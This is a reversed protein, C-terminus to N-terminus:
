AKAMSESRVVHSSSHADLSRRPLPPSNPRTLMRSRNKPSPSTAVVRPSNIPPRSAGGIFSESAWSEEFRPSVPRDPSQYMDPRVPKCGISKRSRDKQKEYNLLAKSIAYVWDDRSKAPATFTRTIPITVNEKSSAHRIEFRAANWKSKDELEVGLVVTSDLVIATTAIFSSPFWYILLLPVESDYGEVRAMALRAWRAKWARSGLWDHGTGKKHLWGEVLIRKLSYGQGEALIGPLFDEDVEDDTSDVSSFLSVRSNVQHQRAPENLTSRTESLQQQCCPCAASEHLNTSGIVRGVLQQLPQSTPRFVPLATPVPIDDKKEEAETMTDAVVTSSDNFSSGMSFSSFAFRISDPPLEGERKDDQALQLPAM